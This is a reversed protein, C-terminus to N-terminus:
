RKKNRKDTIEMVAKLLLGIAGKFPLAILVEDAPELKNKIALHIAERFVQLTVDHKM